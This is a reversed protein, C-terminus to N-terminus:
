IYCRTLDINFTSSIANYAANYCLQFDYVDDGVAIKINGITRLGLKYLTAACCGTNEEVYEITVDGFSVDLMTAILTILDEGYLIIKHYLKLTNALRKVIADNTLTNKYVECLRSLVRIKHEMESRIADDSTVLQPEVEPIEEDASVSRTVVSPKVNPVKLDPTLCRKINEEEELSPYVVTPPLSEKKVDLKVERTVFINNHNSNSVSSNDVKKRKDTKRMINLGVLHKM